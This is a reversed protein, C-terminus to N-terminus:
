GPHSVGADLLPDAEVESAGRFFVFVLAEGVVRDVLGTVMERLRESTEFDVGEDKLMVWISVAPDGEWDLGVDVLWSSVPTPLNRLRCLATEIDATTTSM